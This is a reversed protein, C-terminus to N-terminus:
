ETCCLLGIKGGAGTAGALPCPHGSLPEERSGDPRSLYNEQFQTWQVAPLPPALLGPIAVPIALFSKKMNQLFALLAIKAVLSRLAARFGAWPSVRRHVEDREAPAPTPAM